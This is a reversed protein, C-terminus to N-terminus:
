QGIKVGFHFYLFVPFRRRFSAITGYRTAFNGKAAAITNEAIEGTARQLPWPPHHIEGRFLRNNSYTYLCHRETLWHELTGPCALRVPGEPGYQGAFSAGERIRRSSYSVAIETTSGFMLHAAM